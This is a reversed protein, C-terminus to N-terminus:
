HHRPHLGHWGRRLHALREPYAAPPCKDSHLAGAQSLGHRGCGPCREIPAGTLAVIGRRRISLDHRSMLIGALIFVVASLLTTM